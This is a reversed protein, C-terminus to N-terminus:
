SAGILGKRRAVKTILFLIAAAGCLAIIIMTVSKISHLWPDLAEGFLYGVSAILPGWVAASVANLLVFTRTRLHSASIAIPTVTRMGYIFRFGLAFLILHKELIAVAKKFARKSEVKRVWRADKFHRALWFWLQDVLCAGASAAVCVGWFPLLGQHALIGGTFVAAEGELGAGVFVAALGYRVILAELAM